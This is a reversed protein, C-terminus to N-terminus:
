SSKMLSPMSPSVFTLISLIWEEGKIWGPLQKMTSPLWTPWVHSVKLSHISIVGSRRRTKRAHLSNNSQTFFKMNMFIKSNEHVRFKQHNWKMKWLVDTVHDILYLINIVLDQKEKNKRKGIRQVFGLFLCFDFCFFGWCVEFDVMDCQRIYTHWLTNRVNFTKHLLISLDKQAEDNPCSTLEGLSIM